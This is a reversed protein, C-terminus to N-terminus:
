DALPATHWIRELYDEMSRDSSFYGSNAVNLLAKRNWELEDAYLAEIESQIDMYASFDALTMFWDKTLLENSLRELHEKSGVALMQPGTIFDVAERISPDAEYYARSCYSGDKYRQIVTESSDGFIYINDDGM